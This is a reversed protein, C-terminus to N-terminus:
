LAELRSDAIEYMLVSHHSVLALQYERLFEYSNGVRLLPPISVLVSNKKTASFDFFM